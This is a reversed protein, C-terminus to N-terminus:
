SRSCFSSHWRLRPSEPLSPAFLAIAYEAFAIPLFAVAAVNGLWDSWGVVFGAFDGYAHRAYVYPGGTKPIMTALEATYNANLLTFAGGLTWIVLILWTNGLLNATPGPLRFISVGITGGVVVALGFGLGLIRLLKNKQPLVTESEAEAM